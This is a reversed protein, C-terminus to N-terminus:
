KEARESGFMEEATKWGAKRKKWLYRKARVSQSIHKWLINHMWEEHERKKYEEKLFRIAEEDRPTMQELIETREGINLRWNSSTGYLAYICVAIPCYVFRKNNRYLKLFFLYDSCVRYEVSFYYEDFLQRRAFVSQHCFPLQVRMRELAFAKQYCYLGERANKLIRDGYVVDVGDMDAKEAFHELVSHDAFCDGANMYLVWEGQAKRVAQNMADYIGGDPQVIIQYSIGREAFAPIFSRAINVTEDRSGGDKILYEFDASTQQLVSRITQEIEKGANLCVTIISFKSVIMIREDPGLYM